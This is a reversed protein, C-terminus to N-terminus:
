RTLEVQTSNKSAEGALLTTFDSTGFRRAGNGGMTGSICLVLSQKLLGQSCCWGGVAVGWWPVTSWIHGHSLMSSGKVIADASMLVTDIFSIAFVLRKPLSFILNKARGEVTRIGSTMVIYRKWGLQAIVQGYVVPVAHMVATQEGSRLPFLPPLMTQHRM